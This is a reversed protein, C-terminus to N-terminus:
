PDSWTDAKLGEGKMVLESYLRKWPVLSNWKIALHILLFKKKPPPPAKKKKKKKKTMEQAAGSAYLPEWGLPDLKLLQLQQVIGSDCCCLIRAAGAVWVVGWPSSPVKVWQVLGPISSVVEHNRTTNMLWQAVVPVGFLFM